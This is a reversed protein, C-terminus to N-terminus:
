MKTLRTFVSCPSHCVVKIAQALRQEEPTAKHDAAHRTAKNSLRKDPDAGRVSGQTENLIKEAQELLPKVQRVLEDEDREDEKRSFM